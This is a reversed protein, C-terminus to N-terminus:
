GDLVDDIFTTDIGESDKDEDLDDALTNLDQLDIEESESELLEGVTSDPDWWQDQSSDLDEVIDESPTDHTEEDEKPGMSSSEIEEEESIGMAERALEEEMEVEMTGMEWPKPAAREKPRIILVLGLIVMMASILAIFMNLDGEVLQDYWSSRNGPLDSGEGGTSLESLPYV